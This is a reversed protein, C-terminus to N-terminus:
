LIRQRDDPFVSLNLASGSLFGAPDDAPQASLEMHVGVTLVVLYECLEGVGEIRQLKLFRSYEGQMGAIKQLHGTLATCPVGAVIEATSTILGARQRIHRIVDAHDEKCYVCLYLVMKVPRGSPCPLHEKKVISHEVLRTQIWLIRRVNRILVPANDLFDDRGAQINRVAPRQFCLAVLKGLAAFGSFAASLVRIIVVLPIQRHQFSCLYLAGKDNSGFRDAHAAAVFVPQRMPQFTIAFFLNDALIASSGNGSTIRSIHLVRKM